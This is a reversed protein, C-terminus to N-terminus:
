LSPGPLPEQPPPVLVHERPVFPVLSGDDMALTRLADRVEKLADSLGDLSDCLQTTLANLLNRDVNTMCANREERYAASLHQFEARTFLFGM